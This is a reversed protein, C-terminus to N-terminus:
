GMLQAFFGSPVADDNMMAGDDDYQNITIPVLQYPHQRGLLDMLSM